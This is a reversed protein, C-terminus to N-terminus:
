GLAKKQQSAAIQGIIHLLQPNLQVQIDLPLEADGCRLFVQLQMISPRPNAVSTADASVEDQAQSAPFAEGARLRRLEGEIQRAREEAERRLPGCSECHRRRQADRWEVYWNPSKKRDRFIRVKRPNPM